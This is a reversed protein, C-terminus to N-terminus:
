LPFSHIDAAEQPSLGGLPGTRSDGRSQILGIKWNNGRGIAQGRLIFNFHTATSTEGRIGEYMM